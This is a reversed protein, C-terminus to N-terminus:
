SAPEQPDKSQRMGDKYVRVIDIGRMDAYRRIANAQNESSAQQNETSTRLYLAARIPRAM